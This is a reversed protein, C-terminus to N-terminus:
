VKRMITLFGTHGLPTFEPRVIVGDIKWHRESTETTKIHMFLKLKANTNVLEQAQTIQPCYVALFGGFKLADYAHNLCKWPERLDLTLLDANKAPFGTYVDHEKVEINKLGLFKINAKVNEVHLPNNDYTYVKKVINALFCALAGSGSGADIVVYNRGAGTCAIIQGIDKPIIIQAERKIREFKDIFFSDFVSVNVGTNTKAKNKRFDAKKVGGLKSHFDNKLDRVLFKEGSEAIITKM